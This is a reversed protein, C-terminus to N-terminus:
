TSIGPRLSKEMGLDGVTSEEDSLRLKELIKVHDSPCESQYVSNIEDNMVLLM